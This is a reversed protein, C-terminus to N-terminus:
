CIEGGRKFLLAANCGGFGSLMKVFARRTTPVHRSTLSQPHSVGCEAYGRTGLVLGEDLAHMTLVSELVGAAGMTHGFYGKLANVPVGTLGARDLAISEMEDNYLTATGHVNVVALEGPDVGQLVAQLARYCGEGTRSPGSIHNADNRIAGRCAIWMQPTVEERRRRAYIVTAAAEGLNLGTRNRDFPRCAEPSLAKFSQFGSVIFRSQRDAGIVVARDCRGSWLARMAAIQACLGSTCANSVVVAPNPNRFFSAIRRASWDPLVEERYRNDTELLAVNGKTTSLFFLVRESSPDIGAEDLACAASLISLREFESYGALREAGYRASLARDIAGFDLLSAVFPEPLDWLGEYRRLASEGAVVARLTAATDLGLPSVINDGERVILEHELASEM